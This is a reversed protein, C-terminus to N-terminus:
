EVMNYKKNYEIEVKASEDSDTTSFSIINNGIYLKIMDMNNIDLYNFADTEVGTVLNVIKAYVNLLDTNFELYEFQTLARDLKLTEGYTDNSVTADTAPGYFRVLVPLDADSDNNITVSSLRTGFEVDPLTFPFSFLPVVDGLTTQTTPILNWYPNPAILEVNFLRTYETKDTPENSKKPIRVYCPLEYINSESDIYILKGQGYNPNFVKKCNDVLTKMTNESNETSLVLNMTFDLQEENKGTVTVGQQGLSQVTSYKTKVANIGSISNIIYEANRNSSFTLEDGDANEFCIVPSFTDFNITDIVNLVNGNTDIITWLAINLGPNLYITGSYIDELNTLTQSIGNIQLTIASADYVGSYRATITNKRQYTILSDTTREFVYNLLTVTFSESTTAGLNDTATVSITNSYATLMIQASYQNSGISTMQYDIGNYNASVSSIGEDDTASVILTYNQMLGESDSILTITSDANLKTVSITTSFGYWGEPGMAEIRILNDGYVLPVTGSYENPNATATMEYAGAVSLNIIKAYQFDDTEVTATVTLSNETTTSPYTGVLTVTPRDDALGIGIVTKTTSTTSNGWEDEAYIQLYNYGIDIDVTAEYVNLSGTVKTMTIPTESNKQLTITPIASEDTVEAYIKRTIPIEPSSSSAYETSDEWIVVPPTEDFYVQISESTSSIFGYPITFDIQYDTLAGYTTITYKLTNEDIITPESVTPETEVAKAIVIYDIACKGESMAIGLYGSSYASSTASIDGLDTNFEYSTGVKKFEIEYDVDKSVTVSSTQLISSTERIQINNDRDQIWGGVGDLAYATYSGDTMLWIVTRGDEGSVTQIKGKSLIRFDDYTNSKTLISRWQSNNEGVMYCRGDAVTVSGSGATDWKTSDLATGSFEDGLIFTNDISPTQGSAVKVYVGYTGAGAFSMKSWLKEVNEIWYPKYTQTM